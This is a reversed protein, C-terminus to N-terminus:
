QPVCSQHWLALTLDLSLEPAPKVAEPGPSELGSMRHGQMAVITARWSPTRWSQKQVYTDRWSHNDGDNDDWLSVELAVRVRHAEVAELPVM